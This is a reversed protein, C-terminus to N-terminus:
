LTLRKPSVLSVATMIVLGSSFFVFSTNVFGFVLSLILLTILAALTIIETVNLIKEAKAIDTKLSLFFYLFRGGDLMKVPLMNVAFLGSNIIFALGFFSNYKKVAFFVVIFILNVAPGCLSVICEGKYSLASIKKDIRVGMAGLTIGCIPSRFRMLAILHGIEHLSSFFVACLYNKWMEASLFYAAAAFFLFTAKINVKGIRINM